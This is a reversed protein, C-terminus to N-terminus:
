PKGIEVLWMLTPGSNSSSARPITHGSTVRYGGIVAGHIWSGLNGELGAGISVYPRTQASDVSRVSALWNKFYRYETTLVGAGVTAVPHILRANSWRRQVELGGTSVYVRPRCGRGQNCLPAFYNTSDNNTVLSSTLAVTWEPLANFAIGIRTEMMHGGSADGLYPARGSGAAAHLHAIGYPLPARRVTDNPHARRNFDNADRVGSVVSWVSNVGFTLLSSVGFLQQANSRSSAAAGMGAFSAAAVVMHTIGHRPHGAYLSGAGPLFYSLAGAVFPNRHSTDSQAAVPQALVIAIAALRSCLVTRSPRM